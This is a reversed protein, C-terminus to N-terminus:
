APPINANYRFRNGPDVRAKVGRLRAFAADGFAAAVRAASQDVEPYNLYGGGRLSFPEFLSASRRAWGIGADDDERREWIGIATVNAVAARGGFAASEAPIRHAAGHILEILVASEDRIGAAAEVIADALSAPAEGLFHGKWYHRYGFPIPQNLAQLELWSLPHLGDQYLAPHRRLEDVAAEGQGPDGRWAVFLTLAPVQEATSWWADGILVLEDPASRDLEFLRTLVDRVGDGRYRLRGGYMSPVATMRYRFRTVVGFNGGGGRLAWLLDPEREGDVEVVTGDATVLEAGVLADCAFGESGIIYGIGGGLTLGGIGTDVFTGSPVAFGHGATASDLDMLLSGGLAEVTGGAPDVRAGRWRSLDIVFADDPMSHGAVNHGGGRVAIGLDHEDAWRVATVVDALDAPRFLLRPRRDLMGNFTQRAEDYGPDGAAVLQGRTRTSLSRTPDDM